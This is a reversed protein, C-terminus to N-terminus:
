VGFWGLAILGWFGGVVDCCCADGFCWGFVLFCGCGRVGCGGGLRMWVGATGVGGFCGFWAIFSVCLGGGLAGVPAGCCIWGVWRLM